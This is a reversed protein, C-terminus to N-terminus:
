ARTVVIEAYESPVRMSGDTATNFAAILELIDSELEKQAEAELALFAKHVPGYFTRFFDVFFEPSPYRFVFRCPTYSIAAAQQGFQRQIWEENGWLAPSKVGAPPAVHGGLTNFLQGIFGEATWNAMGITGGDRCVRQMESASREQNPTFMIGFTSVVADFAGDEFPLDEADARQFDVNLGEAEARVQGQKLLTDVYDTSTVNCWRRALALTANGNGAAIDLVKADTPLDLAEALEEGVVQLTVGIKGYDGSSWAANQKTKIAQYDPAAVTNTHVNM